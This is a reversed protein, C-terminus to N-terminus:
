YYLIGKFPQDAQSATKDSQPVGLPHGGGIVGADTEGFKPIDFPQGNRALKM